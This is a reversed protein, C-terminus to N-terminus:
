LNRIQQNSTYQDAQAGYHIEMRFQTGTKIFHVVHDTTQIEQKDQLNVIQSTTESVPVVRQKNICPIMILAGVVSILLGYIIGKKYGIKNLIDVKRAASFLYLILSGIFYASYFAFDILQSQLQTLNFHSKCFPIFVGNSAALFGWFFFVTVLVFFTPHLGRSQKEAM